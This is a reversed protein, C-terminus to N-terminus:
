FGYLEEPNHVLILIVTLVKITIKADITVEPKDPNPNPTPCFSPTRNRESLILPRTKKGGTESSCM